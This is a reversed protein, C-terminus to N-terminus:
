NPKSRSLAHRNRAGQRYHIWRWGQRLPLFSGQIRHYPTLSSATIRDAETDRRPLEKIVPM